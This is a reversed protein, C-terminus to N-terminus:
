SCQLMGVTRPSNALFSIDKLVCGVLSPEKGPVTLYKVTCFSELHEKM